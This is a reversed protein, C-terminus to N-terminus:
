SSSLPLILFDKEVPICIAKGSPRGSICDSDEAKRYFGIGISSSPYPYTYLDRLFHLRDGCVVMGDSSISQILIVTSGDFLACNNPQSVSFLPQSCRKTNIDLSRIAELQSISHEFYFRTKKTRRKLNGLFSEFPFASFSDCVGYLDAFYPLHLLIHFNYSLAAEGFLEPIESVFQQLCYEAHPRLACLRESCFVYLSFHLLIFNNYYRKPLFEKFLFPGLYLVFM